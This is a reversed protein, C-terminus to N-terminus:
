GRGHKDGGNLQQEAFGNLRSITGEIRGLSNATNVMYRSLKAQESKLDQRIEQLQQSISAQGRECDVSTVLHNDQCKGMLNEQQEVRKSLRGWAIGGALVMTAVTAVLTWFHWDM